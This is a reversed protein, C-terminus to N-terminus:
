MFIIPLGTRTAYEALATLRDILNEGDADIYYDALTAPQHGTQRAAERQWGPPYDPAPLAALGARIGALEQRLAAAQAPTWEGESDRHNMLVPFRSGWRGDELRGAIARRFDNFDDYGGIEVGELDEDHGGAAFICLYLGM